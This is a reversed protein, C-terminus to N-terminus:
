LCSTPNIVGSATGAANSCSAIAPQGNYTLVVDELRIGSCPYDKSCQLSLAVPTASTGHIDQYMVNSIKVGSVQNPCNINNPCYDQDILIPNRVNGMVIHQFLVNRVFGTSSRAWTKIRVGNDTNRFTVTKVTLNQVGPEQLDRGLSGISIGHGPGCSVSEIWTNTTGPGISICDDGTGIQSSLISVGTSLQVNIGDTNPSEDPASIKIGQLKANNCKYVIMHFMQSNISKLGSVIINKSSYFGVSTAGRPCTKGAAKCAWLAEGQADLTGGSIYLGNVNDFKIWNESNGILNYNTPAVITGDIRMVMTRKCYYGSFVVARILLYRGPPVYIQASNNSACALKWATLFYQAADATGDAKAGLKQVNFSSIVQSTSHMLLSMFCLTLIFGGLIASSM